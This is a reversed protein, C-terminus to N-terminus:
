WEEISLRSETLRTAGGRLALVAILAAVVILWWRVAGLHPAQQASSGTMVGREFGRKFARKISNARVKYDAGERACGAVLRVYGGHRYAGAFEESGDGKQHQDHHPRQHSHGDGLRWPQGIGAHQLRDEIDHRPKSPHQRRHRDDAP